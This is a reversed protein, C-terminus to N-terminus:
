LNKEILIWLQCVYKDSQMDGTLYVQIDLGRCPQYESSTYFEPYVTQKM